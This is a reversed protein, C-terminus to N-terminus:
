SIPPRYLSSHIQSQHISSPQRIKLESISDASYTMSVLLSLSACGSMPCNCQEQCCDMSAQQNDNSSMMSAHDMVKSSIYMMSTHTNMSSANMPEHVCSVNTYSMATSAMSQGTFAVLMLM